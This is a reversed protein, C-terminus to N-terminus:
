IGFIIYDGGVCFPVQGEELGSELAPCSSRRVLCMNYINPGINLMICSAVRIYRFNLLAIVLDQPYYYLLLM